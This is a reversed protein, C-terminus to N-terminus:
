PWVNVSALKADAASTRFVWWWWIWCIRQLFYNNLYFKYTHGSDKMTYFKTQTLTVTWSNYGYFLINSKFILRGGHEYGGGGRLFPRILLQEGESSKHFICFKM